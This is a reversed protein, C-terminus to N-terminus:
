YSTRRRSTASPRAGTWDPHEPKPAEFWPRGYAFVARIGAERLAAVAADTHEPTTQILSWDLVTAIGADICGLASVPNAAYM